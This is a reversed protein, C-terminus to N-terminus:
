IEIKMDPSQNHIEGFGMKVINNLEDGEFGAFQAFTHSSGHVPNLPDVPSQTIPASGIFLVEQQQQPNQEYFDSETTVLQYLQQSLNGNSQSIDKSLHSNMDCDQRTPNVTALKMSLFEVQHQLSQVYNIIEDLMLAKGTVKNCGPVLDQLLKMRESIKERRVREALSHSDTAQGRRARVHIYDKPPELVKTKNEKEENGDEEKKKMKKSGLDDNGEEKVLLPSTEKAKGKCPAVKRKRSNPGIEMQESASSRENSNANNNDYGLGNEIHTMTEQIRMTSGDNKLLPSSLVRPLKANGILPSVSSRFQSDPNNSTLGLQTTRSNFSRSGFCSFKAAREAFGPDATLSPLGAGSPISNRLIPTNEKVLHDTNPWNTKPQPSNSVPSPVMSTLVSDFNHFREVQSQSLSPSNMAPVLSMLKWSPMQSSPEFHLGANLFFDRDM